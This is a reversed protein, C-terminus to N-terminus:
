FYLIERRINELSSLQCSEYCLFAVQLRSHNSYHASPSCVVFVYSVFLCKAAVTECLVFNEVGACLKVFGKVDVAVRYFWLIFFYALVSILHKLRLMLLVINRCSVLVFVM